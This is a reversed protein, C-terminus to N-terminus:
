MAAREDCFTWSWVKRKIQMRRFFPTLLNAQGRAVAITVLSAIDSDVRKAIEDKLDGDSSVAGM